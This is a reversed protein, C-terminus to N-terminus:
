GRTGPLLDDRLAGVKARAADLVTGDSLAEAYDALSPTLGILSAQTFKAGQPAYLDGLQSAAFLLAALVAGGVNFFDKM